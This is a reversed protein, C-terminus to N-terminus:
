QRGKCEILFLPFRLNIEVPNPLIVVFSNGVIRWCIGLRRRHDIDIRRRHDNDIRRRHDNDIRWRHDRLLLYVALKNPSLPVEIEYLILTKTSAVELDISNVASFFVCKSSLIEV